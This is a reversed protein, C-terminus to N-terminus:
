GGRSRSKNFSFSEQFFLCFIENKEVNGRKMGRKKNVAERTIEALKRDRASRSLTSNRTACPNSCVRLIRTHMPHVPIYTHMLACTHMELQGSLVPEGGGGGGGGGGGQHVCIWVLPNCRTWANGDIFVTNVSAIHRIRHKRRRRVYWQGAIAIVWQADTNRITAPVSDANWARVVVVGLKGNESRVRLVLM